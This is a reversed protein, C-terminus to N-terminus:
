RRGSSTAAEATTSRTTRHTTWAAARTPRTTPPKSWRRIRIQTSYTHNTYQTAAPTDSAVATISLAIVTLYAMTAMAMAEQKGSKSNSDRIEFNLHPEVKDLYVTGDPVRQIMLQRRKHSDKQEARWNHENDGSVGEWYGRGAVKGNRRRWRLIDWGVLFSGRAMRDLLGVWGVQFAQSGRGWIHVWWGLDWM